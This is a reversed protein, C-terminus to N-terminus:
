TQRKAESQSAKATCCAARSLYLLLTPTQGKAASLCISVEAREAQRQLAGRHLTYM